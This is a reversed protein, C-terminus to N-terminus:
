IRKIVRIIAYIKLEIESSTIGIPIRILSLLLPFPFVALITCCIVLFHEIYNLNTRVTKHKKSNLETWNIDEILYNRTEDINKLRINEGAM